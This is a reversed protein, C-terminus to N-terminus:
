VLVGYHVEHGAEASKKREAETRAKTRGSQKYAAVEIKFEECIAALDEFEPFSKDKKGLLFRAIRTELRSYQQMWAHKDAVEAVVWDMSKKLIGEAVQVDEIRDKLKNIDNKCFWDVVDVQGGINLTQFNRPVCRAALGIARKVFPTDLPLAKKISEFLSGRLFVRNSTFRADALRWHQYHVSGLGGLQEVWSMYGDVHTSLHPFERELDAITKTRGGRSVTGDHLRSACRLMCQKDSELTNLTHGANESTQIDQLAGPVDRVGRGLVICPIKHVVAKAFDEDMQRLLEM